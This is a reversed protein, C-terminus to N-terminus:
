KIHEENLILYTWISYFGSNLSNELHKYEKYVDPRELGWEANGQWESDVFVAVNKVDPSIIWGQVDYNTVGSLIDQKNSPYELNSLIVPKVTLDKKLNLTVGSNSIIEIRM